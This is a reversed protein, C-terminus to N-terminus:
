EISAIRRGCELVVDVGRTAHGAVESDGDGGTRIFLLGRMM